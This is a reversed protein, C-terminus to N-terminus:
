MSYTMDAETNEEAKEFPSDQHICYGKGWYTVLYNDEYGANRLKTKLRQIVASLQSMQSTDSRGDWVCECLEKRSIARGNAALLCKLVEEEKKTLLLNEVKKKPKTPVTQQIPVQQIEQNPELPKLLAFLCERLEDMEQSESIVQDVGAIPKETGIQDSKRLITMKYSKLIPILRLVEANSITNSLLVATFPYMKILQTPDSLCQNLVKSTCYVEINLLNLKEQLTREALINKTLYLIQPM